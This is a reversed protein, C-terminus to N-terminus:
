EMQDLVDGIDLAQAPLQLPIDEPQVKLEIILGAPDEGHERLLEKGQMVFVTHVNVSGLVLLRNNRYQDSKLM